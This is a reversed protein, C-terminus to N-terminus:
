AIKYGTDRELYISFCILLFFVHAVYGQPFRSGTEGIIIKIYEYSLGRLGVGLSFEIQM